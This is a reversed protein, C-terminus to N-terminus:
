FNAKYHENLWAVAELIGDASFPVERTIKKEDETMAYNYPGPWAIAQIQDGDDNSLKKLMFNMGRYSGTFVSKKLFPISIMGTLDMM